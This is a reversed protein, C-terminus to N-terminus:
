AVAKRDDIEPWILWYDNPRLDKRTVAGGTAKEIAPCRETPIPRMGTRWQSILVPSVGLKGALAVGTEAGSLYTDLNM